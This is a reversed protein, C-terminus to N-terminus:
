KKLFYVILLLDGITLLLFILWNVFTFVRKDDYKAIINDARKKYFFAVGLLFFPLIVIMNLMKSWYYSQSLSELLNHKVIKQVIVFVLIIHLGITLLIGCVAGFRPTRDQRYVFYRYFFYFVLGYMNNLYIKRLVREQKQKSRQM